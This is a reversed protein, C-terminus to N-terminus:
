PTILPKSNWPRRLVGARGENERRSIGTGTLIECAQGRRNLEAKANRELEPQPFPPQCNPLM